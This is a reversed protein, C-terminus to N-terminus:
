GRDVERMRLEIWELLNEGGDQTDWIRWRGNPLQVSIRAEHTNEEIWKFAAHLRDIRQIALELPSPRRRLEATEFLDGM